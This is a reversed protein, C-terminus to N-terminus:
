RRRDELSPRLTWCFVLMCVTWAGAAYPAAMGTRLFGIWGPMETRGGCCYGSACSPWERDRVVDEPTKGVPVADDGVVLVIFEWNGEWYWVERRRVGVEDVLEVVPVGFREM